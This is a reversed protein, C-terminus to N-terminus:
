HGNSIALSTTREKVSFYSTSGPLVCKNSESNSDVYFFALNVRVSFSKLSIEREFLLLLNLLYPYPGIKMAAVAIFYKSVSLAQLFIISTSLFKWLIRLYVARLYARRTHWCSLSLLFLTGM